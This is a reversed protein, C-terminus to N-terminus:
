NPINSSIWLSYLQHWLSNMCWMYSHCCTPKTYPNLYLSKGTDKSWTWSLLPRLSLRQNTRVRHSSHCPQRRDKSIAVAPRQIESLRKIVRRTRDAGLMRRYRFAVKHHRTKTENRDAKSREPHRTRKCLQANAPGSRERTWWVEDSCILCTKDSPFKKNTFEAIKIKDKINFCQALELTLNNKKLKFNICFKFNDWGYFM